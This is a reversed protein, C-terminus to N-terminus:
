EAGGGATQLAKLLPAFAAEAFGDLGQILNPEDMDIMDAKDRTGPASLYTFIPPMAREARYASIKKLDSEVSRKWPEDGAGYFVVVADCQALQEQNAKRVLASEGEFLPLQVDLGRGKLFKRLPITDKRDREDCILYVLKTGSATATAALAPTEPNQIKALAAHIASRFTGSDATILDAGIQTAPDKHLAEIFRQQEPHVSTTGEPLWIVRVLGALRSREMALENQLVVISKQSPGDPVAGYATGAIHVSLKCSELLRAVEALYGAEDRPLPHDPLVTYGHLRLDAEIAERAERQDFSCEALYVAPKSSVPTASPEPPAAGAELKKAMQALDWALKAIKLRYKEGIEAGYAPDLEIPTEDEDLIFFPYGLVTKMQPPLSDETDVPTKIVKFVRCKNQVVLGGELEAYKCFEFAEKRCWESELYRPSVVSVLMATGPFQQLIEDAFVDNGRLKRDRWVEAKRGLRMSLMAALSSEFRTIWGQEQGSLPQNDIHAYSIFLHKQFAM